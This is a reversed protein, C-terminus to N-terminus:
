GNDISRWRILIEVERDFNVEPLNVAVVRGVEEGVQQGDVSLVAQPYPVATSTLRGRLRVFPEGPRWPPFDIKAM